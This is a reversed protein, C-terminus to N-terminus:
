EMIHFLLSCYKSLSTKFCKGTLLKFKQFEKVQGTPNESSVTIKSSQVDYNTIQIPDKQKEFIPM